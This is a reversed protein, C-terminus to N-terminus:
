LMGDMEKNTYNTTYSTQNNASDYEYTEKLASILLEASTSAKVLSTFYFILSLIIFSVHIM